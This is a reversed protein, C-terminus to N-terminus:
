GADDSGPHSNVGRQVFYGSGREHHLRKEQDRKDYQSVENRRTYRSIAVQGSLECGGLPDDDVSGIGKSQFNEGLEPAEPWIITDNTEHIWSARHLSNM